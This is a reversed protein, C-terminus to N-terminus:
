SLRRVTLAAGCLLLGQATRVDIGTLDRVRSLRNDITNAHVGLDAATRRRDFDCALYRGLTDLLQDDLPALLATLEDASDGPTSLHYDLLVDRLGYVGTPLDTEEAIAAVRAAQTAAPRITALTAAHALGLRVPGGLSAELRAALRVLARDAAPQVPLLAHGGHGDLLTLVPHGALADFERQVGRMTRRAMIAQGSAVARTPQDDAAPMRPLRIAVVHYPPSLDVGHRAAEEPSGAILARTVTRLTERREAALASQEALYAETITTTVTELTSLQLAALYRLAEEEGPLTAGCLTEWIVRYGIHYATLLDRLQVGEDVRQATRDRFLQMDAGTLQHGQALALFLRIGHRATAAIEVDRMDPPLDRLAAHQEAVIRRAIQNAQPLCRAAIVAATARTEDM